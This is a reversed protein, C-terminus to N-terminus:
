RVPLGRYQSAGFGLIPFFIFGLLVLGVTFGGGHGFAKSIDHYVIIAMVINVLPIFFLILWWGPRNAIKCIIYTNYFPIIAGWGPHGAKVFVKWFAAIEVVIVVLYIIIVVGNM